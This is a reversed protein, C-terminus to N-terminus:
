QNAQDVPWYVTFEQRTPVSSSPHLMRFANAGSTCQLGRAPQRNLSPAGASIRRWEKLSRAVESRPIQREHGRYLSGTLHRVSSVLRKANM